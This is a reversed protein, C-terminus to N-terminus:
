VHARGIESISYYSVVATSPTAASALILQSLVDTATRNWSAADVVTRSVLPIGGASINWSLAGMRRTGEIAVSGDRLLLGDNLKQVLKPLNEWAAAALSTLLPPSVCRIENSTTSTIRCEEACIFVQVKLHPAETLSSKFGAGAVTVAFGGGFGVTVPAVSDVRPSSLFETFTPLKWAYGSPFRVTPTLRFGFTRPVVVNMSTESLVVATVVTQAFTVLGDGRFRVGSISVRTGETGFAPLMAEVIPTSDISYRYTCCYSTDSFPDEPDATAIIRGVLPYLQSLATTQCVIVTANAEGSPL